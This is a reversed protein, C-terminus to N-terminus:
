VPAGFIQMPNVRGVREEAKLQALSTNRVCFLHFLEEVSTFRKIAEDFYEV